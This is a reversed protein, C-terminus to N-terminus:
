ANKNLQEGYMEKFNRCNCSLNVCKEKEFKAARCHQNVTIGLPLQSQYKGLVRQSVAINDREDAM